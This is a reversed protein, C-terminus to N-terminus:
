LDESEQAWPRKRLLESLLARSSIFVPGRSVIAPLGDSFEFQGKEWRFVDALAAAALEEVAAVLLENKVVRSEILFQTFPVDKDRSEYLAKKVDEERVHGRTALFEGLREGKKKSSVFIIGGDRFCFCKEAGESILILVGTRKDRELTRFLDAVRCSVIDGRM